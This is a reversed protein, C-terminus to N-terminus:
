LLAEFREGVAKWNYREQIRAKGARSAALWAQNDTLLVGVADVFSKLYEASGPEGRIVQGADGVTEPLASNASAVVPCGAAQAELATICCTEFIFNPYVMVSSRMLERALQGQLVNGHLVCGPLASLEKALKAFNAVHPGRFPEHTDYISLGSFIHFEIDSFRQQLARFISPMLALGRYPASTYILRKPARTEEGTFFEEHVGNYIVASKELPFGSAACLSEKHWTSVALFREIKKGVRSDGLGYNVFQDYGDGTWYFFRKGPAGSVAPRWDKVCVFVDFVGHQFVQPHPLYVPKSAPPTKHSTFVIVEHGNAELVEALRILATETGGLPRESLSEAHIPLCKEAYFAIRM